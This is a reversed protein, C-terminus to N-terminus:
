LDVLFVAWIATLQLLAVCAVVFQGTHNRISACLYSVNSPRTDPIMFFTSGNNCKRMSDTLM